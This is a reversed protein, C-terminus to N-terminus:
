IVRRHHSGEEGAPRVTGATGEITRRGAADDGALRATRVDNSHVYVWEPTSGALILSQSRQCGDLLPQTHSDPLGAGMAAAALALVAVFVAAPARRSM